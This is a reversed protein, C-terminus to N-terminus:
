SSALFRRKSLAPNLEGFDFDIANVNQGLVLETFADNQTNAQANMGPTDRGDRFLSPQAETVQYTGAALNAFLYDGNADTVTSTSVANGQADTGTLSVTVGPIGAEATEQTGNNNADVYVTGAISSSAPDITTVATDRNNALNTELTDTSVDVTNIQDGTAGTNITANVTFRFSSGTTLTGGNVTIVGGSATLAAGGPGTGSVFSVGTPLTDTATVNTATSPGNNTVTVDYVLTSGIQAVALNVSKDVTIDVEPTVTIVEPADNNNVNTEGDASVSAINTIQGTVGTGVMFSLTATASAGSALTVAPFRVQNGVVAANVGNLSGSQFTLGPPIDDVVVVNTGTSPGSNTAVVTYTVIDGPRPTEDDVLKTITVDFEPTLTTQADDSNNSLDFDNDTTISAPNLITGIADEDVDASITFTEMDGVALSDFVVTATNTTSNLNTSDATPANIVINSLGDPLTDTLVINTADSPSDTDHQITFTYTVRDRGPVATSLDVSKTLILDVQQQLSINVSDTNNAPVLDDDTTSVTAVNPIVGSASTAITADFMFTRMEGVGMTGVNFSLNQGTQTSTVGSTGADFGAFTLEPELIDAVTVNRAIGPGNNTVILTYTVDQGAIQQGSVSKDVSVDVARNVVTPEDTSNDNLDPDTDPNAIVSATNLLPSTADPDVNVTVVIETSSGNALDGIAISLNGSGAPTETVTGGTASVFSVDDPLNDTVVVNTAADPGNNTVTITYVEQNGANVPDTADTKEIALNAFQLDVLATDSNNNPNTERETGTVTAPNTLDSTVNTGITSGIQFSTSAGAALTGLNVDVTQGSVSTTFAGFDSSAADFTLGTPFIDQVVVNTADDTQSLNQVTINFVATGGRVVNSDATSLTKVIRLDIEPPTNVLNQNIVVEPTITELIQVRVDNDLSLGVQAEIAGVNNFDANGTFASFPVFVEELAISQPITVTTSSVQTPSTHIRIEAEDSAANESRLRLILGTNPDVAEGPAGGALSIGGLGTESLAVGNQGGDYQVLVNGADGGANMLLEGTGNFLAQVSGNEANTQDVSVVVDRFGGIAETAPFSGSDMMEPAPGATVNTVTSSYDDILAVQTGDDDVVNVTLVDPNTSGAVAAQRVFHIGPSLDDFRYEGAANTMDTGASMDIGDDFLGNGNTDRFVDVQVNELFTDGATITGSNDNDLFSIGSIAGIDSALLERKGLLELRLHRRRSATSRNKIQSSRRFIRQWVM